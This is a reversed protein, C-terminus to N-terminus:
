SVLIGSKFTLTTGGVSITGSYPKKDTGYVSVLALNSLSSIEGSAVLTKTEVTKSVFNDTAFAYGGDQKKYWCASTSADTAFLGSSSLNFPGLQASGDSFLIFKGEFNGNEKKQQCSLVWTKDPNDKIPPQFYVRYTEGNDTTVDKYIATKSINWGGITGSEAIIKIGQLVGAVIWDAVFGGETFSWVASYPGKVGNSSYTIGNLNFYLVKKATAQNDTDMIMIGNPKGADNKTIIMNGGNYGAIKDAMSDIISLIKQNYVSTPKEIQTQINKVTSTITPAVTSLTIENQEPHEPYRTYEVVQHAICTKRDEDILQVVKYLGFDQERYKEPNIKALDYVSCDYSRSPVAMEKLKAKADALLNEKVTYREDSWYASIIKDSYSHDEVYSKGGNIDAFTMGDKGVAYLRTAFDSSKGKLNIERLNLDKSAFAGMPQFSEPDYLHVTKAAVDYRPVVNYTDSCQEIVELPTYAEGEITRRQTKGSHDNVTWGTPLVGKVTDKVTASGNTYNLLMDAKLDDVNIQCKVKASTGSGDIAKVLYPQEHRIINEELISAYNPDKVPINFVLEDLGSWKETIYYDDVQLIPNDNGNILQLM